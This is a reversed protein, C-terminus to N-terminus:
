WAEYLKALSIVAQNQNQAILAIGIIRGGGPFTGAGGRDVVVAFGAFM